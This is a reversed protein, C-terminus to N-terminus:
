VFNVAIVGSVQPYHADPGMLFAGYQAVVLPAVVGTESLHLVFAKKMRRFFLHWTENVAEAQAVCQVSFVPCHFSTTITVIDQPLFLLFRNEECWCMSEWIRKNWEYLMIWIIHSTFTYKVFLFCAEVGIIKLPWIFDASLTPDCNRYYNGKAIWTEAVKGLVHPFVPSMEVDGCNLALWFGFLTCVSLIMQTISQHSLVAWAFHNSFFLPLFLLSDIQDTFNNIYRWAVPLSVLLSQTADNPPRHSAWCAWASNANIYNWCWFWM